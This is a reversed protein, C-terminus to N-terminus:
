LRPQYKGGDTLPADDPEHEVTRERHYYAVESPASTNKNELSTAPLTPLFQGPEQSLM